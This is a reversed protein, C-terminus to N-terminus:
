KYFSYKRVINVYFYYMKKADFPHSELITIIKNFKFDNITNRKTMNLNVKFSLVLVRDDM